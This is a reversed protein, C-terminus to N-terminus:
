PELVVIRMADTLDSARLTLKEEATPVPMGLAKCFPELGGLGTDGKGTAFQMPIVIKPELQGVMEVAQEATIVTGGGIPIMLVDCSNLAELQDNNLQHGIDGLHCFRIGEAALLYSTNRGRQAGKEADHWTRIGYVFVDHIEYEGPGTLTQYEPKVVNLNNHGPHDHSILVVDATNKAMAYGTQRGVPDFLVTAEKARIRFCNHGYWRIEAM